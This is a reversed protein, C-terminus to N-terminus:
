RDEIERIGGDFDHWKETMRRFVVPPPAIIVAPIAQEPEETPDPIPLKHFAAFALDKFALLDLSTCGNHIFEELRADVQEWTAAKRAARPGDWNADAPFRYDSLYIDPPGVLPRLYKYVWRGQLDQHNQHFVGHETFLESERLSFHADYHVTFQAGGDTNICLVRGVIRHDSM